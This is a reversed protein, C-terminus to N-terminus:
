IKKFRIQVSIDIYLFSIFFIWRMESNLYLNRGTFFLCYGLQFRWLFKRYSLFEEFKSIVPQHLKLIALHFIRQENRHKIHFVRSIYSKYIRNPMWSTIFIRLHQFAYFICIFLLPIFVYKRHDNKEWFQTSFIFTHPFMPLLNHSFKECICLCM